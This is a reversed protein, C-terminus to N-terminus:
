FAVIYFVTLSILNANNNKYRYIYCTHCSRVYAYLTPPPAATWWGRGKPSMKHLMECFSIIKILIRGRGKQTETYAWLLHLLAIFNHSYLHAQMYFATSTPLPTCLFEFPPAVLNLPAFISFFYVKKTFDKDFHGLPQPPPPRLIHLRKFQRSTLEEWM